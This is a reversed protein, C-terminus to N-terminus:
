FRTKSGTISSNVVFPCLRLFGRSSCRDGYIGNNKFSETKNTLIFKTKNFSLGEQREEATGVQLIHLLYNKTMENKDASTKPVREFEGL